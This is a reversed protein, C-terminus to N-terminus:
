GFFLRTSSSYAQWLLNYLGPTSDRRLSNFANRMDIKLLVRRYRCDSAYRRAAHAAADCRGSTSVGLQVPRLDEGLAQVIPRSGVKVSLRRLTSGVAIPRFGCVKKKIACENAGYLIPVAFQPVEGRLMVNVLDTLASLLRSGVEASGHAVLSRLHGPRLGDPGGSAGAHFSM